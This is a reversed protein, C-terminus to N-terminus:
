RLQHVPLTRKSIPWVRRRSPLWGLGLGEEDVTVTLDAVM